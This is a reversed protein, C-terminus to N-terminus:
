ELEDRYDDLFQIIRDYSYGKTMLNRIIRQKLERGEYGKRSQMRYYKIFDQELHKAEEESDEENELEINCSESLKANIMSLPFGRRQLYVAIKQKRKLPLEHAYKKVAKDWQADFCEKEVIESYLEGFDAIVDQDLGKQLMIQKLRISGYQKGYRNIEIKEILYKRDNLYNYSILKRIIGETDVESYNKKILYDRVEKITRNQYAIYNLAQDFGSLDNGKKM